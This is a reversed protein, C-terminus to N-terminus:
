RVQVTLLLKNDPGVPKAGFAVGKQAVAKFRYLGAHEFTLVRMLGTSLPGQSPLRPGATQVLRFTDADMDAVALRAGHSLTLKMTAARRSGLVFIHCGKQVHEITLRTAPGAPHGEHGAAPVPAIATAAVFGALGLLTKTAPSARETFFFRPVRRMVVAHSEGRKRVEGCCRPPVSGRLAEADRGQRASPSAFPWM